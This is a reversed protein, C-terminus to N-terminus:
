FFFKTNSSLLFNNITNVDMLHIFPLIVYDKVTCLGKCDMSKRDKKERREIRDYSMSKDSDTM